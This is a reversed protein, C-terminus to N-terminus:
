TGTAPHPCPADGNGGHRTGPRPFVALPATAGGSECRHPNSNMMSVIAPADMLMPARSDILLRQFRITPVRDALPRTPGGRLTEIATEGDITTFLVCALRGVIPSEIVSRRGRM